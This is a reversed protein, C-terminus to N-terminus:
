IQEVEVGHIRERRERDRLEIFHETVLASVSKDMKTAYNHAWDKLEKRILLNLRETKKARPRKTTRRTNDRVGRRKKKKKAM